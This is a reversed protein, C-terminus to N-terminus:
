AVVPVDESEEAFEYRVIEDFKGVESRVRIEAPELLFGGRGIRVAESVTEPVELSSRRKWWREARKRAWGRHEFCVWERQVGRGEVEYEVRMSRPADESAGKKWHIAYRVATVLYDTISVQGTLIGERTAKSDHGRTEPEPFEFGCDPCERVVAPLVSRCKECVKVPAEGKGGKRPRTVSLKDVPGHRVVNGGFDLVLCNEKGESTRFGRGVMQYFLGPSLTPRVIALCDVGPADFGTTLVGMNVLYKLEGRRFEGIVRSRTKSDTEGFVAEVRHGSLRSLVEAIHRGHQIGTSFVLVSSRDRSYAEIEECASEVLEDTDMLEEAEREVFEGARVRLSGTEVEKKGAKTVVDCLYGDQILARVGVEYCIEDFIQREGCIPGSKMRFPTATLGVVRLNPNITKADALFTRYRGEGDPPIMHAEDVLVLDFRDLECAKLYVSQIGAVVIPEQTDRRKLGASYVGIAMGDCIKELKEVAQSLLEKVHALVLVRGGSELVLRCLEAVVFTKGGGTPIVICPNGNKERLHQLAADVARRQYDRLKM